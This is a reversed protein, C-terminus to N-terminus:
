LGYRTKTANYNQLIETSSLVRNYIKLESINANGSITGPDRSGIFLKDTGFNNTNGSQLPNLFSTRLVGDIYLANQQGSPKSKDFICVWHHWALDNVLTKSFSALDYGIDGRVGLAIPYTSSYVPSGDAFAAVFGIISSNFNSSFEFLINSSNSVERYNLCKAWCTVTIKNTSSLDINSSMIYDNTGDFIFSGGNANSYAVGNILTSTIGTGSIDFTTLGTGAYSNVKTADM